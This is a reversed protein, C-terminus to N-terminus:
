RNTRDSTLYQFIVVRAETFGGNVFDCDSYIQSVLLTSSSLLYLNLERKLPLLIRQATQQAFYFICNVSLVQGMGISVATANITNFRPSYFCAFFTLIDRVSDLLKIDGRMLTVSQKSTVLKRFNRAERTGLRSAPILVFRLYLFSKILM